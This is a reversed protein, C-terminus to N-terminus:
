MQALWFLLFKNLILLSTLRNNRAELCLSAFESAHLYFILMVYCLMCSCVKLTQTSTDVQAFLPWKKAEDKYVVNKTTWANIATEMFAGRRAIHLFRLTVPCYPSGPNKPTVVLIRRYLFDYTWNLLSFYWKRMINDSSAYCINYQREYAHWPM